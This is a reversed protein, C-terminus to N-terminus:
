SITIIKRGILKYWIMWGTTMMSQAPISLNAGFLFLV